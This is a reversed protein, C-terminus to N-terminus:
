DGISINRMNKPTTPLMGARVAQVVSPEKQLRVMLIEPLDGSAITVNVKEQYAAQPIWSIKLKTNTYEELKKQLPNDELNPDAPYLINMMTITTTEKSAAEEPQGAAWIITGVVILLLICKAIKM